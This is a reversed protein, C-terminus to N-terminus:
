DEIERRAPGCLKCLIIRHYLCCSFQLEYVLFSVYNFNVSCFFSQGSLMFNLKVFSVLCLDRRHFLLVLLSSKSLEGFWLVM